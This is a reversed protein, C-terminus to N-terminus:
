ALIIFNFFVTVMTNNINDAVMGTDFIQRLDDHASSPPTSPELFERSKSKKRREFTNSFLTKDEVDADPQTMDEMRPLTEVDGTDTQPWEEKYMKLRVRPMFVCHHYLLIGIMFIIMEAVYVTVTVILVAENQGSLPKSAEKPTFENLFALFAATNM